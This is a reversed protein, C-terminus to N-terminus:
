VTRCSGDLDHLYFKFTPEVHDRRGKSERSHDEEDRKISVSVLLCKGLKELIKPLQDQALAIRYGHSGRENRRDDLDQWEWVRMVDTGDADRWVRMDEDSTLELVRQVERSPRAPPFEIGQALPDFSDISQHHGDPETIWQTVRYQVPVKSDRPDLDDLAAFRNFCPATQMARLLAQATDKSALASDVFTQQSRSFGREYRAEELVLWGPSSELASDLDADAIAETWHTANRM